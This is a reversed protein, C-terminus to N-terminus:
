LDEYLTKHLWGGGGIPWKAPWCHPCLFSPCDDRRLCVVENYAYVKRSQNQAEDEGGLALLCNDAVAALSCGLKTPIDACESWVSSTVPVLIDEIPISIMTNQYSLFLRQQYLVMQPNHAATPLNCASHWQSNRIHMVEVSSLSCSDHDDLSSRGGAVVLHTTTAVVAPLVRAILMPPHFREWKWGYWGKSYTMLSKTPTNHGILKYKQGGITTLKDGIIAMSFQQYSCQELENWKDEDLKYAYM